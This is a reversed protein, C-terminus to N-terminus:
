KGGEVVDLELKIGTWNATGLVSSNTIRVGLAYTQNISPNFRVREEGVNVNTGVTFIQSGGGLVSGGSGILDITFSNNVVLPETYLRIEKVSVKKPFVQTQTEYTGALISGQGVPNLSFKWLKGLLNAPAAANSEVTSYYIKSVGGLHDTSGVISPTYVLNSVNLCTPVSKIDSRVQAAQRLLRFLGQRTEGDYQGYQFFSAKVKNDSSDYETTGFSLMNSTSFSATPYPATVKPLSVIKETGSFIAAGGLDFGLLYNKDSYAVNSFASFSYQEQASFSSDIGNWYLKRSTGARNETVTNDNGDFGSSGLITDNVTIVLYNGDPTVDLDVVYTNLPFGPTLKTATTITNTSDIEGINNGNGFYIKGLFQAMPRPRNTNFGSVGASLVSPSAGDNNVRGIATDGGVFIRETTAGYRIMSGSLTFSNSGPAAGIVSASDINPNTGNSVTIQYLSSVHDVASVYDSSGAYYNDLAVIPGLNTTLISTPQELWTLNGPKSYPDYGWSTSYKAFGSNIDGTIKRTLPGGFETIEITTVEQM